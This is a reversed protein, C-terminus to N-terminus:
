WMFRQTTLALPWSFSKAIFLYITAVNVITYLLFEGVLRSLPSLPMHLRYMLYPIIFYRFELLEQPMTALVLCTLYALSMFFSRSKLTELFNWGTFIYAPVLLFRVLKHRQYINKWIYFPFHRNDALLYKHVYTFKWVLFLSVITLVSFFVPHRKLANSFRLTRHLCLSVPLSFFYTFCFFYFVQPFHFCAQHSTRDGVVIGENLLMFLLFGAAVVAYPWTVQMVVKVTEPSTFFDLSFTIVKKVGQSSLPVRVASPREDKKKTYEMRWVDDMKAAVVTGACFAVWVINTQRFLVACVGLLASAKHCGYLTMLYAFLIFFTSGADTYYLFTFFYLVPFTSLSVTCLIRRFMLRTKDRHHLKSILLYLLYFNGCNFLVNTFRLMATSCAVSGTLKALWAMPKIIGVSVLYLGPLTTIMPDWENFKGMCYRQAQPVHFIEDMYPDRQVRTMKSFLLCSVLFNVSCLASFIYSEVKEMDQM